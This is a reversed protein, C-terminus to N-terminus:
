QIAESEIQFEIQFDRCWRSVKDRQSKDRVDLGAVAAWELAGQRTVAARGGNHSAIWAAFDSKSPADDRSNSKITADRQSSPASDTATEAAADFFSAIFAGIGGKAAPLRDAERTLFGMVTQAAAPFLAVAIVGAGIGLDALWGNGFRQQEIATGLVQAMNLAGSALAFVIYSGWAVRKTTEWRTFYISIFVAVDIGAAFPLGLWRWASTEFSGIFQSEHGLTVASFLAVVALPLLKRIRKM